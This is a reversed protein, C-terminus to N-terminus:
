FNQLLNKWLKQFLVIFGIILNTSPSVSVSRLCSRCFILHHSSITDNLVFQVRTHNFLVMVPSNPGCAMNTLVRIMNINWPGRTASGRRRLREWMQCSWGSVNLLGSLLRRMYIWDALLWWIVSPHKCYPWLIDFVPVDKSSTVKLFGLDEQWGSPYPVSALGHRQASTFLTARCSTHPWSKGLAGNWRWVSM